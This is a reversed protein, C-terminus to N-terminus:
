PAEDLDVHVLAATGLACLTWLPVEVCMLTTRRVKIICYLLFKSYKSYVQQAALAVAIDNQPGINASIM